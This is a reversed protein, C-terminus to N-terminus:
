AFYGEQWSFKWANKNVPISGELVPNGNGDIQNNNPTMEVKHPSPLVPLGYIKKSKGNQDYMKFM